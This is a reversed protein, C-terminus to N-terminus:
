KVGASDTRRTHRISFLETLDNEKCLSVYVNEPSLPKVAYEANYIDPYELLFKNASEIDCIGRMKFALPLRDQLTQGAREVRGKSQPTFCPRLQISLKDELIHGMQTKKESIGSLQEAITLTDKQKETTYFVSALDTGLQEPVGYRELARKFSDSYGFFCKNQTIFLGTIKNTADDLTIVDTWSLLPFKFLRYNM